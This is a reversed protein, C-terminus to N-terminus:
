SELNRSCAMITRYVDAVADATAKDPASATVNAIVEDERASNKVPIQAKSKQRGIERVAEFRELLLASISKDLEDIKARQAAIETLAKNDSM